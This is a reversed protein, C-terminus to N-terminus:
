RLPLERGLLVDGDLEALRVFGLSAYLRLAPLDDDRTQLAVRSEHRTALLAEVLHRGTGSGRASALLALEIFEFQGVVWEDVLEDGIRARLYEPWWTDRQGIHGYAFGAIRGGTRAIAIGFGPRRAHM